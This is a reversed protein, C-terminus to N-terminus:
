ASPILSIKVWWWVRLLFWVYPNFVDDEDEALLDISGYGFVGQEPSMLLSNAKEPCKLDSCSFFNLLLLDFIICTFYILFFTNIFWSLWKWSLINKNLVVTSYFIFEAINQGMFLFFFFFLCLFFVEQSNPILILPLFLCVCMSIKFERLDVLFFLM